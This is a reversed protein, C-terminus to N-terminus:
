NKWHLMILELGEDVRATRKKLSGDHTAQVTYRGAPLQVYLWPGNTEVELVQKGQSDEISIPLGALYTGQYTVLDVKLNYGESRAEMEAREGKSVGGTMFSIGNREGKRIGSEGSQASSVLVLGLLGICVFLLLKKM